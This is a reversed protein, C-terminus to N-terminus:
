MAVRSGSPLCTRNVRIGLGRRRSLVWDYAAIKSKPTYALLDIGFCSQSVKKRMGM